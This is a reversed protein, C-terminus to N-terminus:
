SKNHNLIRVSLDVEEDESVRGTQGGLTGRAADFVQRIFEKTVKAGHSHKCNASYPIGDIDGEWYCQEPRKNWDPNTM